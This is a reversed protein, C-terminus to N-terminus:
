DIGFRAAASDHPLSIAACRSMVCFVKAHGDGRKPDVDVLVVEIEDQIQDETQLPAVHRARPCSM